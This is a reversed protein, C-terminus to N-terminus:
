AGLRAGYLAGMLAFSICPPPPPPSREGVGTLLPFSGLSALLCNTGGIILWTSFGFSTISGVNIMGGSALMGLTSEGLKPSGSEFDPKAELPKPDPPPMPLPRPPPTPGAEPGPNPGPEPPPM